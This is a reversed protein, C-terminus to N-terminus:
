WERKWRTGTKTDELIIGKSLLYNRIEDARAFNKAKRALHREEILKNVEEDAIEEEEFFIVGFVKDFKKLYAFILEVDKLSLEGNDIKVNCERIFEYLAALAGSINLDDDMAEEFDKQMKKCLEEIDPNVENQKKIETRLRLIFNRIRDVSEKAQQLAPFTFNLQKRYHSSMLLYRIAIPHAGRDILDKITYFNGKSKSMKEGEIILHECHFWYRCFQKGTACESQAIENEHHPFILDVGGAHIDLTEGLYKMAMASCEIHWGPRGRGIETDWSPENEECSKWLAFDRVSEKEYEDSDVRYGEILEKKELKSLKGYDAFSTIRFYISNKSKYAYGKELLKKIIDVMDSIHETALPYYEAREIRLIALDEFFLRIYHETYEKLSKGAQLAGKITKDDIDTINMVQIVKYGKYELYRRLIDECIFTRFNGLHGRDYVTLGCTYMRVEKDRLPIFEEKKGKLTNYIKFM